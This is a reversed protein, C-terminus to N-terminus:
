QKTSESVVDESATESVPVPDNQVFSAEDVAVAVTNDQVVSILNASQKRLQAQRKEKADMRGLVFASAFLAVGFFIFLLGFMVTFRMVLIGLVLMVVCMIYNVVRVWRM